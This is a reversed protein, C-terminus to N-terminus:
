RGKEVDISHYTILLLWATIIYEYVKIKSDNVSASYRLNPRTFFIYENLIYNKTHAFFTCKKWRGIFVCKNCNM